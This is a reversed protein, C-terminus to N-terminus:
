NPPRGSYTARHRRAFVNKLYFTGFFTPSSPRCLKASFFFSPDPSAHYYFRLLNVVSNSLPSPSPFIKRLVHLCSPYLPMPPPRDSFPPLQSKKFLVPSSPLLGPLLPHSLMGTPVFVRNPVDVAAIRLLSLYPLHSWQSFFFTPLSNTEQRPCPAASKTPTAINMAWICGFLLGRRCNAFSLPPLDGSALFGFLNLV